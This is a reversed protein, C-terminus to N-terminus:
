SKDTLDIVLLFLLIGQVPIFIVEFASLTIQM